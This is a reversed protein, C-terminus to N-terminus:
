EAVYITTEKCTAGKCQYITGPKCQKATSKWPCKAALDVDVGGAVDDQAEAPAELDEIEEDAGEHRREDDTM